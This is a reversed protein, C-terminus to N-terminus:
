VSTSDKPVSKYRGRGIREFYRKNSLIPGIGNGADALSNFRGLSVLTEKANKTDVIGENEKALLELLERVSRNEANTISITNSSLPVEINRSESYDRIASEFMAIRQKIRSLEEEINQRDRELKNQEQRLHALLEFVSLRDGDAM